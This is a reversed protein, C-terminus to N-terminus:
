KPSMDAKATETAPAALTVPAPVSPLPPAGVLALANNRGRNAPSARHHALSGLAHDGRGAHHDPGSPDPHHVPEHHDRRRVGHWTPCSDGCVLLATADASLKVAPSVTMRTANRRLNGVGPAVALAGVRGIYKANSMM